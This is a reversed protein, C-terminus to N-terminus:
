SDLIVSDADGLGKENWGVNVNTGKAGLESPAGTGPYFGDGYRHLSIYMINEDDITLDQSGNGHRVDWDLICM